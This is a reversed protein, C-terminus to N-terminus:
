KAELQQQQQQRVLLTSLTHQLVYASECRLTGVSAATVKAHQLSQQPQQV